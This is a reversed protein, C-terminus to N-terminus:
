PAEGKRRKGAEAPVDFERPRIVLVCGLRDRQAAPEIPLRLLAQGTERRVETVRGVYLGAPFVGDLGSTVVREGSAITEGRAPVYRMEPRGDSGEIMGHLRSEVLRASVRAARAGLLAVRSLKPGVSVVIGVAYVPPGDPHKEEALAGMVVGSGPLIGRDDGADIFVAEPSWRSSSALVRALIPSPASPSETKAFAALSRLQAIEDELTRVRDEAQALRAELDRRSADAVKPAGELASRAGLVLRLASLIRLRVSATLGTPAAALALAAAVLALYLIRRRRLTM